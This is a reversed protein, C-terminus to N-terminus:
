RGGDPRPPVFITTYLPLSTCPLQADFARHINWVKGAVDDRRSATWSGPVYIRHTARGIRTEVRQFQGLGFSAHLLHHFRWKGDVAPDFSEGVSAMTSVSQWGRPARVSITVDEIASRGRHGTMERQLEASPLLLM